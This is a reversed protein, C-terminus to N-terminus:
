SPSFMASRDASQRIANSPSPARYNEDTMLSIHSTNINGHEFEDFHSPRETGLFSSFVTEEQIVEGRNSSSEEETGNAYNFM